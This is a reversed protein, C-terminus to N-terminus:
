LLLLISVNCGLIVFTLSVATFLCFLCVIEIDSIYEPITSGVVTIISNLIMIIIGAAILFMALIDM